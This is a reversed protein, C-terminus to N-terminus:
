PARIILGCVDIVFYVEDDDVRTMRFCFADSLRVARICRPLTSLPENVGGGRTADVCINVVVGMVFESHLCLVTATFDTLTPFLPSSSLGATEAVAPPPLPRARFRNFNYLENAEYWEAKKSSM